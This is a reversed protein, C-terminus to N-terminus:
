VHSALINTSYPCSRDEYESLKESALFDFLESLKNFLYAM